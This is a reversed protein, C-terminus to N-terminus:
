SNESQLIPRIVANNGFAYGGNQDLAILSVWDGWQEQDIVSQIQPISDDGSANDSVIVKTGPLAQVESVLSYLCDLTLSATRYNVIVILLPYTIVPSHIM